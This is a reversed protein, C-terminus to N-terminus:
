GVLILQRGAESPWRCAPLSIMGQEALDALARLGARTPSPGLLAERSCPGRQLAELLARRLTDATQRRVPAAAPGAPAPAAEGQTLAADEPPAEEDIAVEDAEDSLTVEGEPSVQGGEWGSAAAPRDVFLPASMRSFAIAHLLGRAEVQAAFSPSLSIEARRPEVLGEAELADVLRAMAARARRRHLTVLEAHAARQERRRTLDAFTSFVPRLGYRAWRTPPAGAACRLPPLPPPAEGLEAALDLALDAGTLAGPDEVLRQLVTWALTGPTITNTGM